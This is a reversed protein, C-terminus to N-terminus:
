QPAYIAVWIAGGVNLAGADTRPVPKSM